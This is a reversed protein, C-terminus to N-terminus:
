LRMRLNNQMRKEFGWVCFRCVVDGSTRGCAVVAQYIAGEGRSLVPRRDFDLVDPRELLHEYAIVVEHRAAQCSRALGAPTDVMHNEATANHIPTGRECGERGALSM